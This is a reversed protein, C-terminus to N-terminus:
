VKGTGLGKEWVTVDKYRVLGRGRRRSQSM